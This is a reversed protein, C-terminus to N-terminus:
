ANTELHGLQGLADIRYTESLVSNAVKFRVVRGRGTLDLRQIRGGSGSWTFEDWSDTDWLALGATMNFTQTYTDAEEFDFSYSFSLIGNEDTHYVYTHPIGKQNVVDDYSKWNTYYYSDIATATNLPADNSGTDARYVFGDYDQFYPREDIGDVVFTAMASPAMGDYVSWAKNYYDYMIVRDNETQGSTAFSWQIRNKNRQTLSRIKTFNSSNYSLITNNIKDSIKTSTDGDYFYFGDNSFFVLGNETAQVSSFVTCGVSSRSKEMKFPMDANGTFYINYISRSKFVVLANGLVMMGTIPQGDNFGVEIWDASDWTTADRIASWYVRTPYYTGSVVNNGLFLYNQFTKVYKSSTLGSPVDSVNATTGTFGWSMPVDVGNTIFVKNTFTEFDCHNTSTATAGGTIDDWTGDLDDMKEIKDDYVRVAYRVTTGTSDAEAWYLGDCPIANGVDTNLCAYGNRKLISGFKDFDINQLGSSENDQLNLPAATSNLGGNFQTDSLPVSKSTFSQGAM